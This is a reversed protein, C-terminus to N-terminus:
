TTNKGFQKRLLQHDFEVINTTIKKQVVLLKVQQNISGISLMVMPPRTNVGSFFSYPALNLTHNQDKTLVWAIPRPSIVGTFLSYFARPHSVNPNFTKM